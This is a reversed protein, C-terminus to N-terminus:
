IKGGKELLFSKMSALLILGRNPDAIKSQNPNFTIFAETKYAPSSTDKINPNTEYFHIGDYMNLEALKQLMNPNNRIYIWTQMPKVSPDLFLPNVGLDDMDLGTQLFIYDFFDKVSVDNTEFHTLDLPNRINLFFPIVYGEDGGHLNAFFQSYQQNVAFYAAPFKDFRFYSFEQGTGHWVVLPEYHKNLVKSCEIEIADTDRYIYALEWDGFWDKFQPTRILENLADSLDSKSGDPAFFDTEDPSKAYVGDYANKLPSFSQEFLEEFINQSKLKKELIHFNIANVEKQKAQIQQSFDIKKEFDIPSLISRFFMLQAIDKNLQEIKLEEDSAPIDTLSAKETTPQSFDLTVVKRFARSWLGYTFDTNNFKIKDVFTNGNLRESTMEFEVMTFVGPKKGSPSENYRRLVVWEDKLNGTYKSFRDNVEVNFLNESTQPLYLPKISGDDLRKQFNDKKLSNGREDYSGDPKQQYYKFAVDDVGPLDVRNTIKIVVGLQDIYYGEYEIKLPAADAFVRKYGNEWLLSKFDKESNKRTMGSHLEDVPYDEYSIEVGDVKTVKVEYKIKYGTNSESDVFFTDGELIVNFSIFNGESIGKLFIDRDSDFDVKKQKPTQGDAVFEFYLKDADVQNIRLIVGSSKVFFYDGEKFCWYKGAAISFGPNSLADDLDSKIRDIGWTNIGSDSLKFTFETSYFHEVANMSDREVYSLVQLLTIVDKRFKNTDCTPTALVVNLSVDRGDIIIKAGSKPLTSISSAIASPSGIMGSSSSTGSSISSVAQANGFEKTLLQEIKTGLQNERWVRENDGYFRFKEDKDPIAGNPFYQGFEKNILNFIEKKRAPDTTLKDISFSFESGRKLNNRFVQIIKRKDSMMSASPNIVVKMAAILRPKSM